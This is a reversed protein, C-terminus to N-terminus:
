ATGPNVTKFGRRWYVLPAGPDVRTAKDVHGLFIVHDGAEVTNVTRCELIAYAQEPLGPGAVDNGPRIISLGEFKDDDKSAFKMAIDGTGERMINVTFGGAGLMAELSHAKHEICVLILPPDLSVSTYASVTLGHDRGEFTSTVVTVSAAFNSMIDLISEQMPSRDNSM